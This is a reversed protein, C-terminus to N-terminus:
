IQWIGIRKDGAVVQKAIERHIQARRRRGPEIGTITMHLFVYAVDDQSAVLRYGADRTMLHVALGTGFVAPDGTAHKAQVTMVRASALGRVIAM